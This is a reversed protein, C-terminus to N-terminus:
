PFPPWAAALAALIASQPFENLGSLWSRGSPPRLGGAVRWTQDVFLCAPQRRLEGARFMAEVKAFEEPTGEFLM